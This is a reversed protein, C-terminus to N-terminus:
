WYRAEQPFCFRAAAWAYDSIVVAELHSWQPDNLLETVMDDAADPFNGARRGVDLLAERSPRDLKVQDPRETEPIAMWPEYPARNYQPDDQSRVEAYKLHFLEGKRRRDDILEWAKQAADWDLWFSVRSLHLETSTTFVGHKSM